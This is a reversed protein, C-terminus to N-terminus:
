INEVIEMKNKNKKHQKEIALTAGFDGFDSRCTVNLAAKHLPTSMRFTNNSKVWVRFLMRLKLAIRHSYNDM